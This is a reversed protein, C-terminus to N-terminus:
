EPRPPLPRELQATNWFIGVWPYTISYAPELYPRDSRDIHTRRKIWYYEETIDNVSLITRTRWLLNQFHLPSTTIQRSEDLDHHFVTELGRRNQYISWCHDQFYRLERPTRSPLVSSLYIEEPHHCHLDQIQVPIQHVNTHTQTVHALNERAPTWSVHRPEPTPTRRDYYRSVAPYVPELPTSQNIPLVPIPIPIIAPASPQIRSSSPTGTQIHPPHINPTGTSIFPPQSHSRSPRPRRRLTRPERNLLYALTRSTPPSSSSTSSSRSSQLHLPSRKSVLRLPICM